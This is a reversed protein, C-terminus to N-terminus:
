EHNDRNCPCMKDLLKKNNKGFQITDLKSLNTVNWRQFVIGGVHPGTGHNGNLKAKTKSLEKIVDDIKAFYCNSIINDKEGHFIYEAHGEPLGYGEKIFHTLLMKNNRDLFDQMIEKEKQHKPFYVVNYERSHVFQDFASFEPGTANLKKLIREFFKWHEQHISNGDGAKLSVKREKKSGIKVIADRKPLVTPLIDCVIQITPVKGKPLEVSIIEDYDPKTEDNLFTIFNQLDHSLNSFTKRDLANKFQEKTLKDSGNSLNRSM